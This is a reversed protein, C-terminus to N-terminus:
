GPCSWHYFNHDDDREFGMKPYLANGTANSKETELSLGCAGTAVTLEKSREILKKGIGRGRLEPLVFLDNLLWLRKMRTSSFLPYLQVFGVTHNQENVAIFIESDNNVLREGLFRRCGEPDPEKRYFVRYQNFLGALPELDNRTAKRITM